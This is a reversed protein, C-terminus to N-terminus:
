WTWWGGAAWTGGVQQGAGGMQRRAGGVKQGVGGVERWAGGVKTGAGGVQHGAMVSPLLMLPQTM